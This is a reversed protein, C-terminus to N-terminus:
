LTTNTSTPCLASCTHTTRKVLDCSFTSAVPEVAVEAPVLEVLRHELVEALLELALMFNVDLRVRARGQAQADGDLLHLLNEAGVRLRRQGDLAKHLSM